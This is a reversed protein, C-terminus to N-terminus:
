LNSRCETDNGEVEIKTQFPKYPFRGKYQEWFINLLGFM